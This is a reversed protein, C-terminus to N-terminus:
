DATFAFPQWEVKTHDVFVEFLLSCDHACGQPRPVELVYLFSRDTPISDVPGDHIVDGNKGKIRVFVKHGGARGLLAHVYVVSEVSSRLAECEEMPVTLRVRNVCTRWGVDYLRAERPSPLQEDVDAACAASCSLAMMTLATLVPKM